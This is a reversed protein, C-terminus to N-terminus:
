GEEGELTELLTNLVYNLFTQDEWDIPQYEANIVKIAQRLDRCLNENQKSESKLQEFGTINTLSM